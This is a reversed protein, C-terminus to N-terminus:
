LWRHELAYGGDKHHAYGRLGNTHDNSPCFKSRDDGALDEGEPTYQTCEWGDHYLRRSLGYVLHFGMDMGTGEVKIGEHRSDRKGLGLQEAHWDLGIIKGDVVAKLSIWRTMGSPSVHRLITYVTSGPPLWGRLEDRIDTNNM